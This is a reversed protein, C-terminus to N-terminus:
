CWQAWEAEAWDELRMVVLGERVHKGPRKWVVATLGERSRNREIGAAIGAAQDRTAKCELAWGGAIVDGLDQGTDGCRRAEWGMERLYSTM